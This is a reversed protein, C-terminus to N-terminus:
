RQRGGRFAGVDEPCGLLTVQVQHPGPFVLTDEDTSLRARALRLGRLAEYVVDGKQAVALPVRAQM